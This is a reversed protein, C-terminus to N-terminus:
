STLKNKVTQIDSEIQKKLEDVSDFRREPRVMSVLNVVIEEGYINKDFDFIYTEVVPKREDTVTPKVGVNTIGRYHHGDYSIVAEYVGYPPLLKDRDPVINVTPMGMKRGLQRGTVVTGTVSYYAGIYRRAEEMHGLEIEKRILSSSIETGDCKIKDCVRVDFGRKAGYARLFEVNGSGRDGFTFDTGCVVCRVHMRDLLIDEIFEEPSISASEKNLPYEVLVDVGLKAFIRRKEDRTTLGKYEKDSFFAAPSPDFTFVAIKYGDQRYEEICKLLYQHGLHIGDFKGIAICYADDLRFDTTNSIIKMDDEVSRILYRM